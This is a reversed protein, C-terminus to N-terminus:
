ISPEPLARTLFVCREYTFRTGELSERV